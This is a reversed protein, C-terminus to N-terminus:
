RSLLFLKNLQNLADAITEPNNYDMNVIEVAKDYHKFKDAKNQSHVAARCSFL